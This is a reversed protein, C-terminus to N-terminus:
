SAAGAVVEGLAKVEVRCGAVALSAVGLVTTAVPGFGCSRAARGIGRYVEPVEHAEMGAVFVDLSVLGDPGGGAGSLATVANSVAEQTESALDVPEGGGSRTQGATVILRGTALCAHHYGHPEPLDPHDVFTPM